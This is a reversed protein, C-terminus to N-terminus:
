IRGEREIKTAMLRRLAILAIGELEFVCFSLHDVRSLFSVCVETCFNEVRLCELRTSLFPHFKVVSTQKSFSTLQIQEEGSDLAANGSWKVHM